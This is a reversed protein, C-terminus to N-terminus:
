SLLPSRREWFTSHSTMKCRSRLVATFVAVFKQLVRKKWQKTPYSPLSSPNKSRRLRPEYFNGVVFMDTRLGALLKAAAFQILADRSMSMSYPVGMDDAAASLIM